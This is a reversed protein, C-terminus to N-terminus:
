HPAHGGDDGHGHGDGHDHGHGDRQIRPGGPLAPAGGMGRRSLEVEALKAEDVEVPTRGVLDAVYTERLGEYKEQKVIRLVSGKMQDFSREKRDRKNVVMLINWDDGSPIAESVQDVDMAFAQSVVEPDVGPKGESSIFGLDGGRRAYPGASEAMAVAPFRSPDAKLQTALQDALAKTAAADRDPTPRLLIRRVQIKAPTVFDELHSEYYAMLEEDTFADSKVTEYVESRLLLNVLIKRVKPDDHLNKRLAEQFLAEEEVLTQLLAKREAADYAAGNAPPNRVAHHRLDDAGIQLGGVTALPDTVDARVIGGAVSSHSEPGAPPAGCGTVWTSALLLVLASRSM